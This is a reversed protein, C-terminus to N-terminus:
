ARSTKLLNNRILAIYENFMSYSCLSGCINQLAFLASSITIEYKVHSPFFKALSFLAQMQLPTLVCAASQEAISFYYQYLKPLCLVAELTYRRRMAGILLAGGEEDWRFYLWPPRM